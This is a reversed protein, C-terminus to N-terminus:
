TGTIQGSDNIAAPYTAKGGSVDISMYTGNTGRLFSSVFTKGNIQITSDGTVQGLSNVAVPFEQDM